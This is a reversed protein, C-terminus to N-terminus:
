CCWMTQKIISNSVLWATTMHPNPSMVSWTSPTSLISSLPHPHLQEDGSIIVILIRKRIVQCYEPLSIKCSLKMIQMEEGSQLVVDSQTIVCPWYLQRSLIYSSCLGCSYHYPPTPHVWLIRVTGGVWLLFQTALQKLSLQRYDRIIILLASHDCRPVRLGLNTSEPLPCITTLPVWTPVLLLIKINVQSTNCTAREKYLM